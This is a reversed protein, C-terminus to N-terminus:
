RDFRFRKGCKVRVYAILEVGRLLHGTIAQRDTQVTRLSHM